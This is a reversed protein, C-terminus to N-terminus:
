AAPAVNSNLRFLNMPDVRKKLAALFEIRLGDDCCSKWPWIHGGGRVRARAGGYLV